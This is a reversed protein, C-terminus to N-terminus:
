RVELKQKSEENLETLRTDDEVFVSIMQLFLFIALLTWSVGWMWGPPNLKDLMLYAVFPLLIPVRTPLQWRTVVKRRKFITM